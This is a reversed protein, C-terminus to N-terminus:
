ALVRLQVPDAPVPLVAVVVRLLVLVPPAAERAVQVAPVALAALTSADSIGGVCPLTGPRNSNVPKTM